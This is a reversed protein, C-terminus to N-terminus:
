QLRKNKQYELMRQRRGNEQYRQREYEAYYERNKRYNQSVDKKTCEKCKNLRGDSMQLHKYFETLPKEKGCKFCEKRGTGIHQNVSQASELKQSEHIGNMAAGKANLNKSKHKCLWLTGDM